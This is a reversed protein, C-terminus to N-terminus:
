PTPNVTGTSTSAQDDKKVPESTTQIVNVGVQKANLKDLDDQIPGMKLNLNKEFNALDSKTVVDVESRVVNDPLNKKIITTEIEKQKNIIDRQYKIILGMAAILVIIGSAIYIKTKWDM